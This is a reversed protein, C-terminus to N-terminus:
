AKRATKSTEQNHCLRKVRSHERVLHFFSRALSKIHDASLGKRKARHLQQRAANKQKTVEELSKTQWTRRNPRKKKPYQARTGYKNAFYEYVESSLMENKESPLSMQLISTVLHIKFHAYAENWEEESSPLCLARKQIPQNSQDQHVAPNENTNNTVVAERVAPIAGTPGGDPPLPPM